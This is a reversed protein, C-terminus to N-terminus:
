FIADLNTISIPKEWFTLNNTHEYMKRPEGYASILYLRLDPFNQVITDIKSWGEGDPLNNDLFMIEPQISELMKMGENLTYSMYVDYSKEEFYNQMVMCYDVEDDVILIKM